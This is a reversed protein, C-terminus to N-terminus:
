KDEDRVVSAKVLIGKKTTLMDNMVTVIL